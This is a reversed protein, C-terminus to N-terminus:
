NSTSHEAFKTALDKIKRWERVWTCKQAAEWGKAIDVWWLAATGSGVPIEIVIAQSQDVPPIKEWVGNRDDWLARGHSYLALQIAIKKWAHELNGTKVDAIYVKGDLRVIRDMTGAVGLEPVVTIREIYRPTTQLGAESKLAFYADMDPKYKEPVRLREGRDLRETMRHLATGLNSRSNAGAINLAQECVDELQKKDEDVDLTEALTVLDPRKSLGVAVSRMKWKTLGFSDEVSEAFTTARTWAREEGTDPDPLKYRGWHDRKPETM